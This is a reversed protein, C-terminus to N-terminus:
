RYGYNARNMWTFSETVTRRPHSLSTKWREDLVIGRKEYRMPNGAITHVSGQRFNCVMQEEFECGITQCINRLMDM